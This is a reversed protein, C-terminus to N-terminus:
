TAQNRSAPDVYSGLYPADTHLAQQSNYGEDTHAHAQGPESPGSVLCPGALDAVTHASRTVRLHGSGMGTGLHSVSVARQSARLGPALVYENRASFDVANGVLVERVQLCMGAVGHPKGAVHFAVGNGDRLDDHGRRLFGLQQLNM